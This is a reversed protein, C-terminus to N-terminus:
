FFVGVGFTLSTFKQSGLKLQDYGGTLKYRNLHYNLFINFKDVTEANIFTQNFNMEMSIPKAIFWEAGVTYTFGFKRVNGGVYTTGIGWWLDFQESRIRHYNVLLNFLGLQDNGFEPNKEWLKRYGFDIGVRKEFRLDLNLDMSKIDNSESVYRGVFEARFVRFNDDLEYNYNGKKSTYYPYKTISAESMPLEEEGPFEFLVEYFYFFAEGFFEFWGSGDSEDNSNSHSKGSSQNLSSESREIKSQSFSINSMSCIMVLCIMLQKM